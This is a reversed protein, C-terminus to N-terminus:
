KKDSLKKQFAEIFNYYKLIDDNFDIDAPFDEYIERTTRQLVDLTCVLVGENDYLQANTHMKNLQIKSLNDLDFIEPRSVELRGNKMVCKCVDIEWQKFGIICCGEDECSTMVYNYAKPNAVSYYVFERLYHCRQSM